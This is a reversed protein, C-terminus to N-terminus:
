NRVVSSQTIGVDPRIAHLARVEAETLVVGELKIDEIAACTPSRFFAEWESFPTFMPPAPAMYECCFDKYELRRLKPFRKSRTLNPIFGQTDYGAHVSLLELPHAPGSFFDANPASPVGLKLLNPCATLLRATEGSEAYEGQGRCLITGDSQELWLLELYPFSASGETLPSLSLHLTGNITPHDEYADLSVTRLVRAIKPDCLLELVPELGEPALWLNGTYDFEWLGCACKTTLESHWGRAADPRSAVSRALADFEIQLEGMLSLWPGSCADRWKRVRALPKKGGRQVIARVYEGRLDSHEDLWDAYVLKATTDTPANAIGLLLAREDADPFENCLFQETRDCAPRRKAM